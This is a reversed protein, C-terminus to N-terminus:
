SVDMSSGGGIDRKVGAPEEEERTPRQQLTNSGSSIAATARYQWLVTKSQM